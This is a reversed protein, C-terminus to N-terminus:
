INCASKWGPPCFLFCHNKAVITRIFSSSNWPLPIQHPCQPRRWCMRNCSWPGQCYITWIRPVLTQLPLLLIPSLLLINGQGCSHMSPNISYHVLNIESIVRSIQSAHNQRWTLLVCSFIIKIIRMKSNNNIITKCFWFAIQFDPKSWIFTQLRLQFSGWM